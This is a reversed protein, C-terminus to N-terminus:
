ILAKGEWDKAAPVGLISCVTPAIDNISVSSMDIGPINILVPILMDEPMETGHIRDHGGHDATVIVTYEESLSNVVEEITYWCHIVSEIYEETMWGHDHGASDPYGLYLFAFDPSFEKIFAKASDACIDQAKPYGMIHGSVYCTYLMSDPRTIDKLEEWNYFMANTKEFKRLQECLGPIPRVQPTYTNTLVGHRQPDVSHFLSMHCPLTVSPFVTKANLSFSGQEKMKEYFPHKIQELVDPRMGDCLILLVKKNM